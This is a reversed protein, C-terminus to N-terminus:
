MVLRTCDATYNGFTNRCPLATAGKYFICFLRRFLLRRRAKKACKWLRRHLWVGRRRGTHMAHWGYDPHVLLAYTNFVFGFILNQRCILCLCVEPESRGSPHNVYCVTMEHHLALHAAVLRIKTMDRASCASVFVLVQFCAFLIRFAYM